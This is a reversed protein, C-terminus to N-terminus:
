LPIKGQRLLNGLRENEQYQAESLYGKQYKEDNIAMYLDYAGHDEKGWIYDSFSVAEIEQMACNQLINLAGCEASVGNQRMGRKVDKPGMANLIMRANAFIHAVNAMDEPREMAYRAMVDEVSDKMQQLIDINKGRNFLGM